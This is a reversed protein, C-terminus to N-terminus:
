QNRMVQAWLPMWGARLTKCSNREAEDHWDTQEMASRASGVSNVSRGPADTGQEHTKADDHEYVEHMRLNPFVEDGANELIM